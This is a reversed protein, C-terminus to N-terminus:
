KPHNGCLFITTAYGSMGHHDRLYIYVYQEPLTGARYRALVEDKTLIKSM